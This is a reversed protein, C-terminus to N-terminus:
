RHSHLELRKMHVHYYDGDDQIAYGTYDIDIRVDVLHNDLIEDYTLSELRDILNPLDVRDFREGITIWADEFTLDLELLNEYDYQYGCRSDNKAFVGIVAQINNM